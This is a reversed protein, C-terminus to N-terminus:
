GLGPLATLDVRRHRVRGADPVVPRAALVVVLDVPDRAVGVACVGVGDLRHGAGGALVQDTGHGEDGAIEADALEEVDAGSQGGVVVGVLDGLADGGLGADDADVVIRQHETV